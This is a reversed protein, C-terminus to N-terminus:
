ATAVNPELTENKKPAIRAQFSKFLEARQQQTLKTIEKREAAVDKRNKGVLKEIAVGETYAVADASSQLIFHTEACVASVVKATYHRFKSM